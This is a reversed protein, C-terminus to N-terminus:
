RFSIMSSKMPLAILGAVKILDLYYTVMSSLFCSARRIIYVLIVMRIIVRIFEDSMFATGLKTGTVGKPNLDIDVDGHRLHKKWFLRREGYQSWFLQTRRSM